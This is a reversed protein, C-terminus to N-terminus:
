GEIGKQTLFFSRGDFILSDQGGVQNCLLLPCNLKSVVQSFVNIRQNFKNYSYPSASLNIMLDIKKEKFDSIPDRRYHVYKLSESHGWADECISIGIEYGKFNWVKVEEGSEFYRREDFVDYTPLLIKDAYDVLQQNDIIAASNYLPKEFRNPNTRPLGVIVAIQTTANIIKQLHEEVAPIFDHFLLLDEPPYGTLALESFVVLDAKQKQARQIAAIIKETNGSLDGLIPNIQAALIKLHSM